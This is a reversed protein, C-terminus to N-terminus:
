EVAKGVILEIKPIIYTFTQYQIPIRLIIPHRTHLEFQQKYPATRHVRQGTLDLESALINHHIALRKQNAASLHM